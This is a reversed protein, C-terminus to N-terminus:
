QTVEVIYVVQLSKGKIPEAPTGKDIDFLSLRISSLRKATLPVPEFSNTETIEPNCYFVGLSPILTNNLICPVISDCLVAYNGGSANSVILKILRLCGSEGVDLIPISQTIDSNIISTATKSSSTIIIITM